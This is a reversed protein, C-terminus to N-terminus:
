NVAFKKTFFCLAKSIIIQVQLMFGAVINLKFIISNEFFIQIVELSLPIFSFLVLINLQGKNFVTETVGSFPCLPYTSRLISFV